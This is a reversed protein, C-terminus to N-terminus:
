ETALLNNWWAQGFTIELCVMDYICICFVLHSSDFHIRVTFLSWFNRVCRTGGKQEGGTTLRFVVSLFSFWLFVVSNLCSVGGDDVVAHMQSSCLVQRISNTEKRDDLPRHSDAAEQVFEEKGSSSESCWMGWKQQPSM